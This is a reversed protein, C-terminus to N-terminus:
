SKELILHENIASGLQIYEVSLQKMEELFDRGWKQKHTRNNRQFSRFRVGYPIEEEGTFDLSYVSDVLRIHKSTNVFDELYRFHALGLVRTVREKLPGNQLAGNVIKLNIIEEDIGELALSDHIVHSIIDAVSHMSQACAILNTEYIFRAEQFGAAEEGSSLMMKM